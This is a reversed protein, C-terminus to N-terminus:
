EAETLTSPLRIVFDEDVAMRWSNGRDESVLLYPGHRKVGEYNFRRFGQAAARTLKEGPYKRQYAGKQAETFHNFYAYWTLFLRDHSDKMLRHYANFYGRHQPVVLEKPPTWDKGPEKRLYVLFQGKESTWQRAVLHLTDKSDCVLEPYTLNWAGPADTSNGVVVPMTWKIEGPDTEMTHTYQFPRNHAGLVAHLVGKSDSVVVPVDHPDPSRSQYVPSMGLLRPAYKTNHGPLWAAFMEPTGAMGGPAIRLAFVANIMTGSRVVVSGGSGLRAIALVSDAVKEPTAVSIHDGSRTVDILFISEDQFILIAPPGALPRAGSFWEMRIDGAPLSYASWEESHPSKTMLFNLKRKEVDAIVPTYAYGDRDFVIRLDNRVFMDIGTCIGGAVKSIASTFSCYSWEGQENVYAVGHRQRAYARGSPSFAVPHPVFSLQYGSREFEAQFNEDYLIPASFVSTNACLTKPVSVHQSFTCGSLLLILLLSNSM